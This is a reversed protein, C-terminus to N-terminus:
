VWYLTTHSNVDRLLSFHSVISLSHHHTLKCWMAILLSIINLAPHHSLKCWMLIPSTLNYEICPPTLTWMGYCTSNTLSSEFFPPTHTSCRMVILLTCVVSLIFSAPLTSIMFTSQSKHQPSLRLVFGQERIRPLPERKVRANHPNLQTRWVNRLRGCGNAVTRLRGLPPWIATNQLITDSKSNGAERLKTERAHCETVNWTEHCTWLPKTHCPCYKQLTKPLHTANESAPAASQLGGIDNQTAPAASEVHRTAHKKRIANDASRSTTVIHLNRSLRPTKHCEMFRRFSRVFRRNQPRNTLFSTPFRRNQRQSTHFTLFDRVFHENQHELM